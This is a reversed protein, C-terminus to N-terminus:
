RAHGAGDCHRGACHAPPIRGRLSSRLEADLASFPEDLLLLRPATILARALAVRQQVFALQRHFDHSWMVALVVLTFFRWVVGACGHGDAKQGYRGFGLKVEM